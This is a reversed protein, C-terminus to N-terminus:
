KGLQIINTVTNLSGVVQAIDINSATSASLVQSVSTGTSPVITTGAMISAVLVKIRNFADITQTEQGHITSTSASFAYYSLGSQISQRNGGHTLDFAISDTIFGLDRQCTATSYSIDPHIKNVYAVVEAAMYTKNAILLNFANIKASL